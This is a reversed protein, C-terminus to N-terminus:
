KLIKNYFPIKIMSNSNKCDAISDVFSFFGSSANPQSISARGVNTLLELIVIV